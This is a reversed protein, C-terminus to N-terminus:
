YLQPAYKSVPRTSKSDNNITKNVRCIYVMHERIRMLNRAKIHRICLHECYCRALLGLVVMVLFIEVKPVPLIDICLALSLNVVLVAGHILKKTSEYDMNPCIEQEFQDILQSNSITNPNLLVDHNFDRIFFINQWKPSFLKFNSTIFNSPPKVPLLNM